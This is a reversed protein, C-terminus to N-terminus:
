RSQPPQNRILTIFPVRLTTEGPVDTSINIATKIAPDTTPAVGEVILTYANEGHIPEIRATLNHPNAGEITAATIAFPTNKKSTIRTQGKFPKGATLNALAIGRPEITLDGISIAYATAEREIPKPSTPTTITFRAKTNIPGAPATASLSAQIFIRGPYDPEPSPQKDDIVQWSIDPHDFTLSTLLPKPDRTLITIHSTAPTGKPFTGFQMTDPILLIPPRYKARLTVPIERQTPDNTTITTTRAVPGPRAAPPITLNATFEVSEGPAIDRKWIESNSGCNCHHVAHLTQGGTNTITFTHSLTDQSEIAGFDHAAPELHIRPSTPQSQQVSAFSSLVLSFLLLFSFFYFLCRSM